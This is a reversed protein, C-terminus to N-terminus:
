FVLQQKFIYIYEEQQLTVM